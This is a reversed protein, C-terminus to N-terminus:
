TLEGINANKTGNTNNINHTMHFAYKKMKEMEKEVNQHKSSDTM